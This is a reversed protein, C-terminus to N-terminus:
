WSEANVSKGMTASFLGAAIGDSAHQLVNRWTVFKGQPAPEPVLGPVEREETPDQASQLQDNMLM